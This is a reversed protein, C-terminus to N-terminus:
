DRPNTEIGIPAKEADYTRGNKFTVYCTDAPFRYDAAVAGIQAGHQNCGPELMFAKLPIIFAALLAILALLVAVGVGVAFLVPLVFDDVIAEVLSRRYRLRKRRPEPDPAYQKRPDPTPAM